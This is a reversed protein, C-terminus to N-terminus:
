CEEAINEVAAGLLVLIQDIAGTIERAWSKGGFSRPCAIRRSHKPVHAVKHRRRLIAEVHAHGDSACHSESVVAFGHYTVVFYTL